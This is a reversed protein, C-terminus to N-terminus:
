YIEFQTKAYHFKNISRLLRTLYNKYKKFKRNMSRFNKNLFKSLIKHFKNLHCGSKRVFNYANNKYM